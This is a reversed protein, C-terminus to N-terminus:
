ESHTASILKQAEELTMGFLRLMKDLEMPARRDPPLKPAEDKLFIVQSQAQM